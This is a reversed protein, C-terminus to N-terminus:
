EKSPWKRLWSTLGLLQEAYYKQGLDNHIQAESVLADCYKKSIDQIVQDEPLLNVCKDILRVMRSLNDIGNVHFDMTGDWENELLAKLYQVTRDTTRSAGIESFGPIM